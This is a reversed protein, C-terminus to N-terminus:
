QHIRGRWSQALYGSLIAIEPNINICRLEVAWRLKGIASWYYSAQDDGLVSSLDLAPRYGTQIASKTSKYLQQDSKALKDEVMNITEQIYKDVSM